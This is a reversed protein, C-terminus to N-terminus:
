LRGSQRAAREARLRLLSLLEALNVLGEAEGREALTLAEGPGAPGARRQCRDVRPLDCDWRGILAIGVPDTEPGASVDTMADLRLGATNILAGLAIQHPLGDVSELRLGVTSILAIEVQDGSGEM